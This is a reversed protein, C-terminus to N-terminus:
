TKIYKEVYFDIPELLYKMSYRQALFEHPSVPMQGKRPLKYGSSARFRIKCFDHGNADWFAWDYDDHDELKTSAQSDDSNGDIDSLHPENKMM